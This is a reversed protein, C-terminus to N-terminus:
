LGPWVITERIPSRKTAVEIVSVADVKGHGAHVAQGASHDRV